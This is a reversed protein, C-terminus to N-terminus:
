TAASAKNLPAPRAFRMINETLEPPLPVTRQIRQLAAEAWEVPKSLLHAIEADQERTLYVGLVNVLSGLGLPLFRLRESIAQPVESAMLKLYEEQTRSVAAFDDRHIERQKQAFWYYFKVVLTHYNDVVHWVDISNNGSTTIFEKAKGTWDFGSELLNKKPITLTHVMQETKMDLVRTELALGPLGFHLVFNRLCKVFQALSWNAFTQIETKYESFLGRKEYHHTHIRRTHDILSAAGAVFNHLRRTLEMMFVELLMRNTRTTLHLSKQASLIQAVINKLEIYNQEFVWISTQLRDIEMLLKHEPM